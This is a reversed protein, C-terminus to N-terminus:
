ATENEFKDRLQIKKIGLNAAGPLKLTHSISSIKKKCQVKVLSYIKESEEKSRTSM